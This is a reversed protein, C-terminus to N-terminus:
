VLLTWQRITKIKQSIQFSMYQLKVPKWTSPTMYISIFRLKRMSDNKWVILLTLFFIHVVLLSIHNKIMKLEKRVSTGKIFFGSWQNASCILPSTEKHHAKLDNTKSQHSSPTSRLNTLIWKSVLSSFLIASRTISAAIWLHVIFHNKLFNWFTRFLIGGISYKKSYTFKFWNPM